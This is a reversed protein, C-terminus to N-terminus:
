YFSWHYTQVVEPFWRDESKLGRDQVPLKVTRSTGATHLSDRPLVQPCWAIYGFHTAFVIITSPYAPNAGVRIRELCPSPVARPKRISNNLRTEDRKCVAPQWSYGIGVLPFLCPRLSPGPAQVLKGSKPSITPFNDKLPTKPCLLVDLHTGHVIPNM